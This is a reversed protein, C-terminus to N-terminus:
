QEAADAAALLFRFLEDLPEAKQLAQELMVLHAQISGAPYTGDTQKEGLLKIWADRFHQRQETWWSVLAVLHERGHMTERLSTAVAPESANPQFAAYTFDPLAAYQTSVAAEVAASLGILTDKFPPANCFRERVAQRYSERPNMNALRDGHSKLGPTLYGALEAGLALCVDELKREAEAADEQLEALEAALQKQAETMLVSECLPCHAADDHTHPPVYFQAALAKLRFKQDQTQRAHWALATALKVRATEIAAPLAAFSAAENAEKLAAWAAFAAIGNTQLDVVGRAATVAKRITIRGQTTTTEISTAIESRLTELHMGAEDSASQAAGRLATVIAADDIREESPLKFELEEAKAKAREMNEDFRTQLGDIGNDKGYHLFRRGAHTLQGCGEAIDALQDLGTLMKVADYLSHSKDGFGIRALRAPMLLGTEILQPARELRPDIQINATPAGNLPCTMARYATAVDGKTNNFTLRVWVEVPKLLEAPTAPYSAFPPWDGIEKGDANNVPARTGPEDIPGDQERIRKGTLAWLIASALSTKGSGNQGLLCWNDVETWFVFPPGGYSTLGGFGSAEIRKLRWIEWGTDVVPASVRTAPDTSEDTWAAILGAFLEESGQAM